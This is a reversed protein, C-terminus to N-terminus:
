KLNRLKSLLQQEFNATLKASVPLYWWDDHAFSRCKVADKETMLLTERPLDEATFRHHDAFSLCQKLKVSCSLLLNFFRQPNGIGAIAVVPNSLQSLPQSRSPDKVNVLAGPALAMLHEGNKGRSGNVVVFDVSALRQQSERLPGMPLLFGNGCRRKGDMVVIEIDRKLAYHQLGDDCIILNCDHNELLYRAGRPRNPDVVMPCGVHQKMLVPEDGVIAPSSDPLVTLPYNASKGGYGRSLVGPRFGQQKLLQALHIVLPTKGNGGVTINGVIIVPVSIKHSTKWGMSFARRRAWAIGAFLLTVPSLALMLPWRYWTKQYWFNDLMSM